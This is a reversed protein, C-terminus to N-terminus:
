CDEGGEAGSGEGLGQGECAEPAPQARSPPSLPAAAGSQPSKVGGSGGPGAPCLPLSGGGWGAEGLESDQSMGMLSHPGKYGAIQLGMGRRQPLNTTVRIGGTATYLGM